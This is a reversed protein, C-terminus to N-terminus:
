SPTEPPRRPRRSDQAFQGNVVAGGGMIPKNMSFPYAPYLSDVQAKTLGSAVLTARTIEDDM